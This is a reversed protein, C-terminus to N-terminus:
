KNLDWRWDGDDRETDPCGSLGLGGWVSIESPAPLSTLDIGVGLHGCDIMRYTKWSSPFCCENTIGEMEGWRGDFAERDRGAFGSGGMSERGEELERDGDSRGTGMGTRPMTARTLPHNM